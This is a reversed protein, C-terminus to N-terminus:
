RLNWSGMYETKRGVSVSIIFVKVQGTRKRTDMWARQCYPLEDNEADNPFALLEPIRTLM